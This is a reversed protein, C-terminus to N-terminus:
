YIKSEDNEAEETNQPYDKANIVTKKGHNNYRILCLCAGPQDLGDVLAIFYHNIKDLLKDISSAVYKLIQLPFGIIKM